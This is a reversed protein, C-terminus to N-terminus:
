EGQGDPPTELFEGVWGLTFLTEARTYDAGVWEAAEENMQSLAEAPTEGFAVNVHERDGNEDLWYLNATWPRETLEERDDDDFEIIFHKTM